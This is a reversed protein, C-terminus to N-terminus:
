CGRRRLMVTALALPAFWLASPEPVDTVDLTGNAAFSSRSLVFSLNVQYVGPAGYDHDGPVLDLVGNTVPLLTTTTTGDGWDVVATVFTALGDDPPLALDLITGGGGVSGILGIPVITQSGRLVDANGSVSSTPPSGTGATVTFPLPAVVGVAFQTPDYVANVDYQGAPLVVRSDPTSPPMSVILSPNAVSVL